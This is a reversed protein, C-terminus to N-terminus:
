PKPKDKKAATGSMVYAGGAFDIQAVIKDAGPSLTVTASVPNGEYNFSYNLVLAKDVKTVDTIAQPAMQQSAIEGVVKEKEVKVTLDFTAPGNPGQMALTWDGLFPAADAASVQAAQARGFAPAATVTTATVLGAILAAGVLASRIM